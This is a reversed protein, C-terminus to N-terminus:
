GKVLFRYNRARFVAGERRIEDLVVGSQLEDQERLRRGNVLVFRDAPDDAYVIVSIRFKPLSDRVSQPLEWYSMADPQYPTDPATDSAPTSTPTPETGSRAAVTTAASAPENAPTEDGSTEAVPAKYESIDRLSPASEDTAVAPEGSSSPPATYAEVPTRPGAAPAPPSSRPTPTAEGTAPADIALTAAPPAPPRFQQWGFWAMVMASIVILALPLWQRMPETSEPAREGGHRHIDPQAGLRRQEESKRLADLLMSM